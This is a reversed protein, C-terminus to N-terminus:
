ARLSNGQDNVFMSAVSPDSVFKGQIKADAGSQQIIERMNPPISYTKPTAVAM